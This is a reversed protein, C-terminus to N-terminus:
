ETLKLLEISADIEEKRISVSEINRGIPINKADAFNKLDLWINKSLEISKSLIDDSNRLDNELWKPISIGLWHMFQLTKLSGCPTLTFIIPALEIKHEKGYYYYDSLFNKSADLNYVGQSVFFKCGSAIKDFVRLHEPSNNTHREPIVVGGLQLNNNIKTKLDYADRITLNVKQQRSAAGVFVSLYQESPANEIFKTLERVNYKGVARYIM